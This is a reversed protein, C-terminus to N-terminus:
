NWVNQITLINVNEYEIGHYRCAVYLQSNFKFMHVHRLDLINSVRWISKSKNQRFLSWNQNRSMRSMSGSLAPIPPSVTESKKQCPPPPPKRKEEENRVLTDPMNQVTQSHRFRVNPVLIQMSRRSPMAAWVGPNQFPTSQLDRALFYYGWIAFSLFFFLKEEEKERQFFFTIRWIIIYFISKIKLSLVRGCSSFIPGLLPGYRRTVNYFQSFRSPKKILKSVKM